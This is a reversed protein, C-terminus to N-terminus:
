NDKVAGGMLQNRIEMAKLLLMLRLRVNPDDLDLELERRIRSLRELLTSRHVYLLSAAQSASRDCALYTELTELYSTSSTKDHEIIRRLGAPCWMELPIEGLSSVVMDQLAFDQFQHLRDALGLLAGNELASNAELYYLRAQMLDEVPDSLGARMDLGSTFPLLASEIDQLREQHSAHPLQELDIFAVVSNHHHEFALCQPFTSEVMNRVYGLPLTALRSSMKLRMCVFTREASASDVTAKSVQDLPLGNVLDQLAQRLSGPGHPRRSTLQRLARRVYRTLLELAARDSAREDRSGYILTVCGRYTNGEHLNCNLTRQGLIDIVFPERVETSIAHEGLFMDFTELPLSETNSAALQANQSALKSIGLINFDGDLALLGNGLIAESRTLMASVDGDEDVMHRLDDEWADFEDFIRQVTNFTSFFDAERLRVVCCRQALRHLLPSDGLCIIAAGQEAHAHAPLREARMVYLHGSLFAREAGEYLEPRGLSTHEDFRGSLHPELRAPLNDVITAITLRVAAGKRLCCAVRTAHM